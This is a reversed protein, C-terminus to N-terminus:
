TVSLMDRQRWVIVGILALGALMLAYSEPEPVVGVNALAIVQGMNNIAVADTLVVGTPLHILSNLDTVGMGNPGTIFAHTPGPGLIGPVSTDSSGVVQGVDNIGNANSDFWPEGLTGLDTRNAGNPGTITAHSYVHPSFYYGAVQGSTNIANGESWVEDSTGLETMGAGNPGTIFAHTYSSSDYYSGAVQGSANIAKAWRPGEGLTGLDTMGMGNPGTMFVHFSGDAAESRGVVQGATNIGFAKSWNLGFTGLNNTM